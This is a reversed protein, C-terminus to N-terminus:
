LYSGSCGFKKESKQNLKHKRDERIHVNAEKKLPYWSEEWWEQSLDDKVEEETYKGM